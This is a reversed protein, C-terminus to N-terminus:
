SDRLKPPPTEPVKKRDKPWDIKFSAKKPENEGSIKWFSNWLPKAGDGESVRGIPKVANAFVHAQAMLQGRGEVRESKLTMGKWRPKLPRGDEDAKLELGATGSAALFETVFGPMYETGDEVGYPTVAGTGVPLIHGVVCEPSVYKSIKAADSNAISIQRMVEVYDQQPDRILSRLHDRTEKQCADTMGFVFVQPEKPKLGTRVLRRRPRNSLPAGFKEVTSLCIAFPRKGHFGCICITLTRDSNSLESLWTDRNALRDVFEDVSEDNEGANVNQMIWRDVDFGISTKAIGCFSVLANWDFRGIPILKQVTIDTISKKEHPYFLCFDGSLYVAQRSTM